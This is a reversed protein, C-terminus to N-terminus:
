PGRLSDHFIGQRAGARGQFLASGILAAFGNARRRGEGFPKAFPADLVGHMLKLVVPEPLNLARSSMRLLISPQVLASTALCQPM